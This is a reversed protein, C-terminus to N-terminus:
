RIPQSAPQVALTYTARTGGDAENPRPHQIKSDKVLVLLAELNNPQDRAVKSGNASVLDREFHELSVRFPFFLQLRFDTGLKIIGPGCDRYDPRAPLGFSGGVEELRVSTPPCSAPTVTIGFRGNDQVVYFTSADVLQRLHDFVREYQTATVSAPGELSFLGPQVVDTVTFFNLTPM